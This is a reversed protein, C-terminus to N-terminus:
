DEGIMPPQTLACTTRFLTRPAIGRDRVPESGELQVVEPPYYDVVAISYFLSLFYAGMGLEVPLRCQDGVRVAFSM